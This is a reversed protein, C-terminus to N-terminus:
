SVKDNNQLDSLVDQRLSSFTTIAQHWIPQAGTIISKLDRNEFLAVVPSPHKEIPRVFYCRNEGLKKAFNRAADWSGIDNGFWLVLKTFQELSPLVQQPLSALGLFMMIFVNLDHCILYRCLFLFVASVAFEFSNLSIKM